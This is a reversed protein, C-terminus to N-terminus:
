LGAIQFLSEKSEEVRSKNTEPDMPLSGICRLAESTSSETPQWSRICSRDGGALAPVPETKRQSILNTYPRCIRRPSSRRMEIIGSEDPWLPRGSKTRTFDGGSAARLHVLIVILCWPRWRLIVIVTGKPVVAEM